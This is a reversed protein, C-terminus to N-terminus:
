DNGQKFAAHEKYGTGIAEWAREGPYTKFLACIRAIKGRQALTEWDSENKHNAFKAEKKQV